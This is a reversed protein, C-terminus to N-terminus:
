RGPVRCCQVTGEVTINGATKNIGSCFALMGLSPHKMLGNIAWDADNFNPTRCGSGTITYGSPCAPLQIDFVNNATVTQSTNVDTCQLATARPPSFYGVIDVVYHSAAFTFITFDSTTLPNPIRTIIANNVIDGAAYNVSAALPQATGFPYVTAFGATAPFVATVNLAVASAGILNTGCDTASGGQAAYGSPSVAAFSRTSNGPIQGAATSRTDVIRCPQLPTYTLDQTTDGLARAVVRPRDAAAGTLSLRALADIAQQDSLRHGSGALEAMAGEFTDRALAHRLNTPDAAVFNPVMRKAWVGVPVNYIRQVYIGWKMVFQRALQGREKPSMPLASAKAGASAVPQNVTGSVRAAADAFSLVLAATLAISLIRVPIAM